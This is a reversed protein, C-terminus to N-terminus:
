NKGTLKAAAVRQPFSAPMAYGSPTKIEVVEVEVESAFLEEFQGQFNRVMWGTLNALLNIETHTM